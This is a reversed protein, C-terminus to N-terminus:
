STSTLWNKDEVEVRETECCASVKNDSRELTLVVYEVLDVLIIKTACLKPPIMTFFANHEEEVEL